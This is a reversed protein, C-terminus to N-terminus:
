VPGALVSKVLVSRSIAQWDQSTQHCIEILLTILQNNIRDLFDRNRRPRRNRNKTGNLGRHASPFFHNYEIRAIVPISTRYLQDPCLWYMNRQLIRIKSYIPILDFIGNIVSAAHNHHISWMIRTPTDPGLCVPLLQDLQN